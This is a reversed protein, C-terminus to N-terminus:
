AKKGCFPCYTCAIEPLRSRTGPIRELRILVLSKMTSLDNSISLATAICASKPALDANIKTVCECNM